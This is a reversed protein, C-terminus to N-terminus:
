WSGTGNEPATEAGGNPSISEEEHNQCSLGTQYVEALIGLIKHASFLAEGQRKRRDATELLARTNITPYTRKPTAM